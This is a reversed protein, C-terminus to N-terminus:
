RQLRGLDLGWVQRIGSGCEHWLLLSRQGGGFGRCTDFGVVTEM